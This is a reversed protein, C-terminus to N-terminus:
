DRVNSCAAGEPVTALPAKPRARVPPFGADLIRAAAAERDALAEQWWEGTPCWGPVPVTGTAPSGAERRGPQAAGAGPGAGAALGPVRAVRHTFDTQRSILTDRYGRVLDGLALGEEPHSDRVLVALAALLSPDLGALRTADLTMPSACPRSTRRAIAVTPSRTTDAKLATRRSRTRSRARPRLSCTSARGRRRHRDRGGREGFRPHGADHDPNGEGQQVHDLGQDRGGPAAPLARAGDGTAVVSPFRPGPSGRRIASSSPRWWRRGRSGTATAPAPIRSPASGPTASPAFKRSSSSRRTSRSRTAGSKM